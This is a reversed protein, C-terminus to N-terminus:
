RPVLPYFTHRRPAYDGVQGQPGNRFTLVSVGLSAPDGVCSRPLQLVVRDGPQEEGARLRLGPCQVWTGRDTWSTVSVIGLVDSNAIGGAFYEPGPRSPDTDLWIIVGDGALLRRQEVVVGVPRAPDNVVRVAVVDVSLPVDGRPDLFTQDTAAASRHGTAGWAVAGLLAACLIGGLVAASRVMKM